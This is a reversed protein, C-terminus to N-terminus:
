REGDDWILGQDYGYREGWWEEDESSYGDWIEHDDDGVLTDDDGAGVGQDQDEGMYEAAKAHNEKGPWTLHLSDTPVRNLWSYLVCRPRRGQSYSLRVCYHLTGIWWRGSRWSGCGLLHTLPFTHDPM